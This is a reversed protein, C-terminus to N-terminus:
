GNAPVLGWLSGLSNKENNLVTQGSATIKYYKRRNGERESTSEGWRNKVYGKKELRNMTTYLGGLSIEKGSDEKVRKIIELGYLERSSLASLIYLETIGLDNAM